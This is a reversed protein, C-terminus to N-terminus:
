TSEYTIARRRGEPPTLQYRERPAGGLLRMCGVQALEQQTAASLDRKGITLASAAHSTMPRQRHASILSCSSHSIPSFDEDNGGSLNISNTLTM